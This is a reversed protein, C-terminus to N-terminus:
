SKLNGTCRDCRSDLYCAFLIRPFMKLAFLCIHESHLLKPIDTVLYAILLFSLSAWLINLYNSTYNRIVSFSTKKACQSNVVTSSNEKSIRQKKGQTPFNGRVRVRFQAAVAECFPENMQFQCITLTEPFESWSCISM